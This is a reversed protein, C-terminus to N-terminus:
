PCMHDENRLCAITDNALHPNGAGLAVGGQLRLQGLPRGNGDSGYISISRSINTSGITWQHWVETCSDCQITGPESSSNSEFSGDFDYTGDPRMCEVPARSCQSPAGVIDSLYVGLELPAGGRVYDNLLSMYTGPRGNNGLTLRTTARRPRNAPDGGFDSRNHITLRGFLEHGHLRLGNTQENWNSTGGLSISNTALENLPSGYIDPYREAYPGLLTSRNSDGAIIYGSHPTSAPDFNTHSAVWTNGLFSTDVTEACEGWDAVYSSPDICNESTDVLQALGANADGGVVYVGAHDSREIRLSDMRWLNANSTCGEFVSCDNRTHDASIRVGQTFGRIYVGELRGSANMHVGFHNTPVCGSPPEGNEEPACAEAGTLLPDSVLGLDRVEAWAAGGGGCDGYAGFHIGTREPAIHILTRAGWGEGGDGYVLHQRCLKVTNTLLYEGAPIHFMCGARNNDVPPNLDCAALANEMATTIDCIGTTCGALQRIDFEYNPPSTLGGQAMAVGPPGHDHCGTVMLASVVVVINLRRSEM